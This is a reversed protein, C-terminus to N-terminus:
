RTIRVEPPESYDLWVRDNEAPDPAGDHVYFRYASRYIEGPKISFEGIVM